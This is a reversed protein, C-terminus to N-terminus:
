QGEATLSLYVARGVCWCRCKVTELHLGVDVRGLLREFQVARSLLPM